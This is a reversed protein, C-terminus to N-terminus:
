TPAETRYSAFVRAVAQLDTGTAHGRMRRGVQRLHFAFPEGRWFFEEWGADYAEPFRDRLFTRATQWSEEKPYLCVSEPLLWRLATEFRYRRSDDPVFHPVLCERGFTPDGHVRRYLPWGTDRIRTAKLTHRFPIPLREDNILRWWRDADIQPKLDIGDFPLQEGDIWLFHVSPFYRYQYSWSPHWV